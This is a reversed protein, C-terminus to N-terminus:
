RFISKSFHNNIFSTASGAPSFVTSDRYAHDYWAAASVRAGFAGKYNLDLEGLADLRNTVIDGRKFKANGEDTTAFNLLRQDQSETRLGLNYRLTVDARVKLDANGTDIELAHAGGTVVMAAAAAILHKAAGSPGTRKHGNNM